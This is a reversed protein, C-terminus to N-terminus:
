TKASCCIMSFIHSKLSLSTSKFSLWTQSYAILDVFLKINTRRQRDFRIRFAAIRRNLRRFPPAATICLIPKIGGRHQPTAANCRQLTATNDSDISHWRSFDPAHDIDIRLNTM